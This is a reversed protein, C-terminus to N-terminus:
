QSLAATSNKKNYYGSDSTESAPIVARTIGSPNQKQDCLLIVEEKSLARNYIRIEDLDGNLWYPYQDNNMHGIFLDYRNSFSIYSDPVSARLISDVYLDVTKNNCVWVVSYWQNSRILPTTALANGTGYFMEKTSDAKDNCGNYPDAFRLFYNGERYDNDGKMLLMNNYCKGTYFKTVKVWLAISMEDATNLSPSNRVKMYNNKGNFHYASNPNGMRDATLSANNYSPNNKNGSMDKDNGNFPFYLVLGSDLNNQAFSIAISCSFLISLLIRKM